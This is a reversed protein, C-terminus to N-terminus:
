YFSAFKWWLLLLLSFIGGFNFKFVYNFIFLDFKELKQNKLGADCSQEKSM